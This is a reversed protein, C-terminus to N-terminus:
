NSWKENPEEDDDYKEWSYYNRWESAKITPSNSSFGGQHVWNIMIVVDVDTIVVGFEVRSSAMLTPSVGGFPSHNRLTTTTM